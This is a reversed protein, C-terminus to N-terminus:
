ERLCAFMHADHVVEGVRLRKRQVGEYIAGVKEAVGRSAANRVAVVIELRNLGVVGIGFECILQVAQTAAGLRSKASCVWYGLNCVLDCDDIANLGCSGIVSDDEPDFILFQYSTAADWAAVANEVWAHCEDLNSGSHLWGMWPSIAERSAIAAAFLEEAVGVFYPRLEFRFGDRSLVRRAIKANTSM